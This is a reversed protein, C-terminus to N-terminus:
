LTKKIRGNEIILTRDAFREVESQSHSVFIIPIQLDTKVKELFPFIEEKSQSDLASLPEDLLLMKPQMLICRAIAVRQKEGGSLQHPYLHLLHKVNMQTLVSNTNLSAANDTVRRVAFQINELANLHPFLNNDQFM